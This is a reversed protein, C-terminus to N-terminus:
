QDVEELIKVMKAAVVGDPGDQFFASIARRIVDKLRRVEACTGAIGLHEVWPKGCSPCAPEPAEAQVSGTGGCVGCAFGAGRCHPCAGPQGGSM